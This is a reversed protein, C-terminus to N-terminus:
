DGARAVRNGALESSQGNQEKPIEPEMPNSAGGDLRVSATCNERGNDASELDPYILSVAAGLSQDPHVSQVQRGGNSEDWVGNPRLYVRSVREEASGTVTFTGDWSNSGGGACRTVIQYSHNGVPLAEVFFRYEYTVVWQPPPPVTELPVAETATPAPTPPPPILEPNTQFLLIGLLLGVGAVGAFVLGIGISRLRRKREM